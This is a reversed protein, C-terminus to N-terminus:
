WRYCFTFVLGMPPLIDTAIYKGFHKLAGYPRYISYVAGIGSQM